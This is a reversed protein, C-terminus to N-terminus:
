HDGLLLEPQHPLIMCEKKESIAFLVPSRDSENKIHKILDRSFSLVREEELCV